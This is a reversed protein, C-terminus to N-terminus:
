RRSAQARFHAGYYSGPRLASLMFDMAVAPAPYIHNPSNGTPSVWLTKGNEANFAYLWRCHSNVYIVGNALVPSSNVGLTSASWLLQLSGVTSVSLLNETTNFGHHEPGGLFQPWDTQVKFTTQAALGSRRGVGTIWHRGPAASAPIALPISTFAGSTGATALALDAPSTPEV